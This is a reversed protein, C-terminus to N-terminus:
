HPIFLLLTQPRILFLGLCTLSAVAFWYPLMLFAHRSFAWETPINPGLGFRNWKVLWYVVDGEGMPLPDIYLYDDDPMQSNRIGATNVTPLNRWAWEEWPDDSDWGARCVITGDASSWAIASQLGLPINIVDVFQLSRIWGMLFLGALVLAVAGTKRRWRHYVNGM